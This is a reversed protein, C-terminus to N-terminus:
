PKACPSDGSQELISREIHKAWAQRIGALEEVILGSMHRGVMGELYSYIYTHPRGPLHQNMAREIAFSFEAAVRSSNTAKEVEHCLGATWGPEIMVGGLVGALHLLEERNLHIKLVPTPRLRTPMAPITIM